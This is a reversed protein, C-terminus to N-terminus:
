SLKAAADEVLPHLAHIDPTGLDGYIIMAVTDAKRFVVLDIGLTISLGSVTASLNMQYASSQDGVAPFSMAGITGALTDGGSTVSIHGCGSLVHRIVTMASRGNSPLYALYEDLVPLGNSGDAFTAEAKSTAKLDSKVNQLCKPAPSSSDSSPVVSWGAPLDSVALLEANLNPAPVTASTSPASTSPHAAPPATNKPATSGCAAVLMVLTGAIVVQSCRV